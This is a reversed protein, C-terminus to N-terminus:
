QFFLTRAVGGPGDFGISSSPKGSTERLGETFANKDLRRIEGFSAM